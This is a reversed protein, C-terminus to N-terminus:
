DIASIHAHFAKNFEQPKEIHSAHGADQIVVEQYAGGNEEYTSLVARTQGLMPQPAAADEGPWGPIYNLKGLTALDFLSEDGVIMDDSGHVWLVPPKVDLKVLSDVDSIVYKPSLANIPGYKGPGVNPWFESTSFDGPYKQDGTREMLSATLFDEERAARFGAKYYYTNIINRPSNQTSDTRDSASIAAIFQPNVTGGGSGTFDDNNPIGELGHTGGFGYPSVPSVLTVSLVKEPHDVLYAYCVGGGMSWGVIHAQDINMAEFLADLDDAWDHAGRTADILKDETWGYGRLDPAIARYGEPLTTMIEEWYTAASFNGHLFVVPIGADRYTLVHSSIRDTLVMQSKVGDLHTIGSDIPSYIEETETTTEQTKGTQCGNIALAVVLLAIFWVTLPSHKKIM